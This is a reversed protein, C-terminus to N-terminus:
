EEENEEFFQVNDFDTIHSYKVPTMYDKGYFKSLYADSDRPGFFEGDEFVYKKKEDFFVAPIFTDEEKIYWSMEFYQGSKKSGLLEMVKLFLSDFFRFVGDPLLALAKKYGKDSNQIVYKARSRSVGNLCFLQLKKSCSKETLISFQFNFISFKPLNECLSFGCYNEM